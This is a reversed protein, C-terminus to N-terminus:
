ALTPARSVGEDTFVPLLQRVRARSPRARDYRREAARGYFRRMRLWIPFAQRAIACTAISRTFFETDTDGDTAVKEFVVLKEPRPTSLQRLLVVDTLRFVGVTPAIALVLLLVSAALFGPARRLSRVAHRLEAAM